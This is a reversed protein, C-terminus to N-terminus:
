PPAPPHSPPTTACRYTDTTLLAKLLFSLFFALLSLFRHFLNPIYTRSTDASTERAKERFSTADGKRALPASM